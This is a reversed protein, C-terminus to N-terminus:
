QKENPLLRCLVFAYGLSVLILAASVPILYRETMSENSIASLANLVGHTIVCPWLSGGRRFITVFLFGIAIAYCVQCLNSVLEAGSGNLLNVVHGIGFTISSVIIAARLGDKSMAKFLFGRFIVEELFGVLMMSAFYCLTEPLSYKMKVGFWVNVLAIVVLPVYCLIKGAPYKAACLGYYTQLGNKQIFTYAVASLAPTFVLTVSKEFGVSESLSDAISCGVVYVVIWAVAFWIESKEYLKKM